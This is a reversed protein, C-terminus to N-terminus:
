PPNGNKGACQKMKVHAPLLRNTCHFIGHGVTLANKQDGLPINSYVIGTLGIKIIQAGIALHTLNQFNGSVVNTDQNFSLM